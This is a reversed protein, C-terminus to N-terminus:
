RLLRRKQRGVNDRRGNEEFAIKEPIVDAPALELLAAIYGLAAPSGAVHWVTNSEVPETLQWDYIMATRGDGFVIYWTVEPWWEADIGEDETPTPAGFVEALREYPVNIAGVKPGGFRPDWERVESFAPVQDAGIVMRPAAMRSKALEAGALAATPGLASLVEALSNPRRKM